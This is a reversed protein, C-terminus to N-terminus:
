VQVLKYLDQSCKWLKVSWLFLMLVGQKTNEFCVRSPLWHYNVYLGKCKWRFTKWAVFLFVFDGFGQPKDVRGRQLCSLLCFPFVSKAASKTLWVGASKFCWGQSTTERRRAWGKVHIAPKVHTQDLSVIGTTHATAPPLAWWLASSCQFLAELAASDAWVGTWHTWVAARVLRLWSVRALHRLAEGSLATNRLAARKRCCPWVAATM